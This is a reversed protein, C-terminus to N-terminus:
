LNGIHKCSSKDFLGNPCILVFTDQRTSVICMAEEKNASLKCEKKTILKIDQMQLWIELAKNAPRGENYASYIMLSLFILVSAIAAIFFLNKYREKEQYSFGNSM